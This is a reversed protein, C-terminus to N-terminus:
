AKYDLAKILPGLHKEYRRWREVSTKYVPQRVQHNSATTVPRETKHFDLCQDDWPLGCFELLERVENEPDAVLQEYVATYYPIPLVAAWHQMLREYHKFYVALHEQKYSFEQSARFRQFYCSLCTDLPHRKAHIIKANPLMQSILGLFLFNHPMKDVIQKATPFMSGVRKAYAEGFGAIVNSPVSDIYEPYKIKEPHHQSITEAISSLDRLEGAGEVDPHSSLIQELLTTGSRPMGVIFIPSATSTGEGKRRDFLEKPFCAIIRDIWEIHKKTDFELKRLDNGLKYNEFADDYRGVDNLIKGAAFHLFCQDDKSLTDTGLMEELVPIVPDDSEFRKVSALNFYAEAYDPKIEISKRYHKEASEFDGLVRYMPGINHHIEASSENLSLAKNMMELARTYDGKSATVIGLLNWLHANAPSAKVAQAFCQEAQDLNGANLFQIGQKSLSQNLARSPLNRAQVKRLCILYLIFYNKPLPVAAPGQDYVPGNSGEPFSVLVVRWRTFVTRWKSASRVLIKNM